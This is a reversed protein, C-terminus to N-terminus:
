VVCVIGTAQYSVASKPGTMATVNIPAFTGGDMTICIEAPGDPEPITINPSQFNFTPVITCTHTLFLSLSVSM